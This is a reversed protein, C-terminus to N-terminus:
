EIKNVDKVCRFGLNKMSYKAKLSGRIAYRMFAAYNMLDTANVAASGCFLNNDKDVDKRSEGTILVSNFDITWEWVLGHLDHVGWVNKNNLGVTNENSRPAEYWSLIQENYSPKVRADKTTEDAMAAYEWEDVTPLRKGQCECYDKAAFWSVYTVPSNPLESNKFELDNKWNNLYSKDTFLKIANSKQWKPYKAVFDAYESNTVPYVDIEFDKVEVVTSDRGYLPIYRSGEIFVMGESQAYVIPQFVLLILLLRFVQIKM